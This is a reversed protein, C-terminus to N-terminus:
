IMNFTIMTIKKTSAPVLSLAYSIDLNHLDILHSTTCIQFGRGLTTWRAIWSAFFKIRCSKFNFGFSLNAEEAKKKKQCATTKLYKCITRPNTRRLTAQRPVFSSTCHQLLKLDHTTPTGTIWLEKPHPWKQPHGLRSAEHKHTPHLTLTM